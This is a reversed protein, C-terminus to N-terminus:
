GGMGMQIYGSPCVDACIRCGICKSYDTEVYRGIVQDKNKSRSIADQPCYIICSDCEFCMGCSMCRDAENISSEEKLGSFREKFNGLVNDANVQSEGRLYRQTEEFHGLYLDEHTVIEAFSRNEYNHVAFDASDTGWVEGQDMSAPQMQHQTLEELLNFHHVDVKPRKAIDQDNLYLDIGNAAISAHGIATTLLHPKLADGGVFHGEKEPVRFLNDATMQGWGNDFTELGQFDGKQGTASVILSCEIEFEDGIQEVMKGDIWDVPMVKLARALGQEDLVVELPALGEHIEVGETIVASLEHATAPAQDIPRRYVVWVDGPNRNEAVQSSQEAGNRLVDDIKPEDAPITTQGIRRAVAVVDMATDGGGIVLVRGSLYKLRGENFAKLFSIGDICNEVSGGPIPLAKGEVAGVAWFIADFQNELAEISLDRGIRTNLKLEVGMNLIRQTEGMLVERPIRYGPIGFVMMGGPEAYEDFITCSHGLCRLFYAASLGAPGAGVIAVHKGTNQKPASFQINQALAWDGVYQEISNIGVFDEIATRNCGDQCPAPCVRGMVAPFPNARAMRHFAYEEWPMGEPPSDLGRVIGLWGRVDHGSPCSSQCPPTRHEYTPCIASDGLIAEDERWNFKTDGDTYRKFTFESESM